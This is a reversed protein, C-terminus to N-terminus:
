DEGGKAPQARDIRGAIVRADSGSSKFSPGCRSCTGHRCEVYSRTRRTHRSGTVSLAYQLDSIPAGQPGGPRSRVDQRQDQCRATEDDRRPSHSREARGWRNAMVDQLASLLAPQGFSKCRSLLANFTFVNPVM